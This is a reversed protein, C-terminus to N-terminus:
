PNPHKTEINLPKYTSKSVLHNLMLKKNGQQSVDSFPLDATNLKLYSKIRVNVSLHVDCTRLTTRMKYM